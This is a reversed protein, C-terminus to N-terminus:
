RKFKVLFKGTSKKLGDIGNNCKVTMEENFKEKQNEIELIEEKSLDKVKEMGKVSSLVVSGEEGMKFVYIAETKSIQTKEIIKVYKGSSLKDMKEKTKRLLVVLILLLGASFFVLKFIFFFYETFGM